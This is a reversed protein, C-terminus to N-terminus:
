FRCKEFIEHLLKPVKQDMEIITQDSQRKEINRFVRTSYLFNELKSNKKFM